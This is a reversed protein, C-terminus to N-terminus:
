AEVEGVLPRFTWEEREGYLRRLLEVATQRPIKMFLKGLHKCFQKAVAVRSWDACDHLVVKSDLDLIITYEKVRAKLLRPGAEELRVEEDPIERTREFRRKDMFLQLLRAPDSSSLISRAEAERRAMVMPPPAVRRGALFSEARSLLEAQRANLRGMLNLMQLCNAVAYGHFHNNFYGYLAEVRSLADSLRPVWSKLEDLSYYYNYWPRAGRGHWRVYTFPATTRVLPPLLPEDVVVYAVEFRELLKFVEEAIWSPERFEIAFKYGEPLEALLKELKEADLSLSPPLQFLLPGLKGAERLPSLLSLFRTLDDVVGRKVDVEKEHTILKPVKASFVFPKPTSRAWAKVISPPPYSYFTSDIEVTSFVESYQRLMYKDSDYLVGVWDVYSWGSTGLFLSAVKVM